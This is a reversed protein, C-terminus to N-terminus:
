AAAGAGFLPAICLGASSRMAFRMGILCVFAPIFIVFAWGDGAHRGLCAGLALLTYRAVLILYHV